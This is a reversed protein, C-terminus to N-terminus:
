LKDILKKISKVHGTLTYRKVINELVRQIDQKTFKDGLKYDEYKHMELTDYSLKNGAGEEEYEIKRSEIYFELERINLDVLRKLEQSPSDKISKKYKKATSLDKLVAKKEDTKFKSSTFRYEPYSNSLNFNHIAQLVDFAVQPYDGKPVLTLFGGYEELAKDQYDALIYTGADSGNFYDSAMVRELVFYFEKEKAPWIKSKM